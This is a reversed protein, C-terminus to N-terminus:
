RDCTGPDDVNVTKRIFQLGFPHTYFDFKRLANGSIETVHQIDSM